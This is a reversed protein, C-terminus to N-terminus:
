VPEAAGCLWLLICKKGQRQVAEAAARASFLGAFSGMSALGATLSGELFLRRHM